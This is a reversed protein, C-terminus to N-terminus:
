QQALQEAAESAVPEPESGLAIRWPSSAKQHVWQPTAMTWSSVISDRPFSAKQQELQAAIASEIDSCGAPEVPWRPVRQGLAWVILLCCSAVLHV